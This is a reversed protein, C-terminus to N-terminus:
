AALTPMAMWHPVTGLPSVGMGLSIDLTVQASIRVRHRFICGSQIGHISWEM